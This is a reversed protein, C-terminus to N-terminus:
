LGVLVWGWHVLASLTITALSSVIVLVVKSELATTGLKAIQGIVNTREATIQARAERDAIRAATSQRISDTHEILADAAFKLAVESRTMIQLMDILLQRSLEDESLGADPETPGAVRLKRLVGLRELAKRLDRDLDSEITPDKAM